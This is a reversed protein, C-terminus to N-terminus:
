QANGQAPSIAHRGEIVKKRQLRGALVSAYNTKAGSAVDFARRLQEVRHLFVQVNMGAFGSGIAFNGQQGCAAQARASQRRGHNVVLFHGAFDARWRQAVVEFLPVSMVRSSSSWIATLSRSARSFVGSPTFTQTAAPHREQWLWPTFSESAASIVFRPIPSRQWTFPTPQM